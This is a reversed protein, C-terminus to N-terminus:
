CRARQKKKAFHSLLVMKPLSLHCHILSVSHKDLYLACHPGSLVYSIIISVLEWPEVVSLGTPNVPLFPLSLSLSLSLSPTHLSPPPFLPTLSLATSVM